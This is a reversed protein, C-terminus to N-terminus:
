LPQSSLLRAASDSLFNIVGAPGNFNASTGFRGGNPAM